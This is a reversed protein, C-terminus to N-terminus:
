LTVFIKTFAFPAQVISSCTDSSYNKVGGPCEKDRQEAWYTLRGIGNARGWQVLKSADSLEFIEDVNDNVGLDPTVGISAYPNTGLPFGIRKLQAATSQAAQIAYAGMMGQPHPANSDGFDMAMVNVIALKLHARVASQVVGLVALPMGQPLVPLTYSIVLPEHLAAYHQQVLVLAQTRRAVSSAVYPNNGEIDFDVHTFHYYDIAAEFATALAQPTNCVGAIDVGAAGGFSLIADGGAARI